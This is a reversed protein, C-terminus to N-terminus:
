ALNQLNKDFNKFYIKHSLGKLPGKWVGPGVAPGKGYVQAWQLNREMCRPESCPGEMFGLGVKPGKRYVKAWHLAREICRPGSCNEKGYVQAWQLAREM